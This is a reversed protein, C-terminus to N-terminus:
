LLAALYRLGQQTIFAFVYYILTVLIGRLFAGWRSGGYVAYQSRALYVLLWLALPVRVWVWPLLVALSLTLLLSCHMYAGQVLHEGYRRPRGPYRDGRGLYVLQMLGAYLPLLAFLVYPGLRISGTDLTQLREARSLSRYHLVRKRLPDAVLDPSADLIELWTASITSVPAASAASAAAAVALNEELEPVSPLTLRLLGFLLLSLVFFLRAPRVFYRRRGTLYAQTLVGPKSLLHALTRWLRGDLALLRGGTHALFEGVSPM